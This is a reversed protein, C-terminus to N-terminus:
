RTVTLTTDWSRRALHVNTAAIRSTLRWKGASPLKMSVAFRTYPSRNSSTTVVTHSYVWKGASDMRYCAIRVVKSGAPYMPKLRGESTFAVGKRVIKPASPRTLYPAPSITVVGSSDPLHTTDGAFSVQYVAQYTPKLVFRYVGNAATLTSAVTRYSASGFPRHKLTVAKGAVGRGGAAMTGCLSVTGGWAVTPSASASVDPQISPFGYEVTYSGVGSYAWVNLYHDGTVAVRHLIRESSTGSTESYAVAPYTTAVSSTGPAFLYLDLDVGKKGTMRAYFWQGSRMPIRHVNDENTVSHVAGKIPSSPAVVGPVDYPSDVMASVAWIVGASGLALMIAAGALIPALVPKASM